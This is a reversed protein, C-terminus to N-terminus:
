TSFRLKGHKELYYKVFDAIDNRLFMEQHTAAFLGLEVLNDCHTKQLLKDVCKMERSTCNMGAAIKRLITIENDTFKM